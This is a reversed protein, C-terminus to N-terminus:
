QASWKEAALRMRRIRWQSRNHDQKKKDLTTKLEHALM